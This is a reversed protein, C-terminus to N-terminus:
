YIYRYTIVLSIVQKLALKTVKNKELFKKMKGLAILENKVPFIYIGQSFHTAL